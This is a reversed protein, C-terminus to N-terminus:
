DPLLSTVITEIIAACGAIALILIFPEALPYFFSYCIYIIATCWIGTCWYCSLLQGMWHRFGTGKIKLYTETSGDELVEEYIEHFPKRIFETIGDYVILRTLRFSALTIILFHFASIYLGGEKGM